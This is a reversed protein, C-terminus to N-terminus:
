RRMRLTTTDIRLLVSSPTYLTSRTDEYTIIEINYRTGGVLLGGEGNVFDQWFKLAADITAVYSPINSPGCRPTTRGIRIVPQAEALPLSFSAVLLLLILSRLWTMTAVASFSSFPSVSLPTTNSKGRVSCRVLAATRGSKKTDQDPFNTRFEFKDSLSKPRNHRKPAPVKASKPRNSVEIHSTRLGPAFRISVM